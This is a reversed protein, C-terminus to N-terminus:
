PAASSSGFTTTCGGRRMSTCSSCTERSARGSRLGLSRADGRAPAQEPVRRPGGKLGGQPTRGQPARPSRGGTTPPAETEAEGGAGRVEEVSRRLLAMIDVVQGEGPRWGDRRPTVAGPHTQKEEIVRLLDERYEDRYDEPRWATVMAAVLQEAMTIEPQTLGLAALDDGPVDLESPERLEYAFRLLELVMVEGRPIVACLYERTRIVVKAIAVRGTDRLVARLLAYGKKGTGVPALYYPKDFYTIDIEDANVFGIIGIAQTAKPNARRFDDDDLVVYNGGGTDYGRVIEEYPVERGTEEDVRRERVRTMTRRDLQNFRLERRSEASYLAVPINVLGFSIGGKWISRPM